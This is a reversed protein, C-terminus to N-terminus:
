LHISIAPSSENKEKLSKEQYNGSGGILFGAAVYFLFIALLLGGTNDTGYIKM